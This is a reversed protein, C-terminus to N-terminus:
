VQEWWLKKVAACKYQAIASEGIGNRPEPHRDGQEPYQQDTPNCRAMVVAAEFDVPDFGEIEQPTAVKDDEEEENAAAATAGGRRRKRWKECFVNYFLFEHVLKVGTVTAIRGSLWNSM